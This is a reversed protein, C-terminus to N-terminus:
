ISKTFEYLKLFLSILASFLVSEWLKEKKTGFASLFTFKFLSYFLFAFVMAMVM